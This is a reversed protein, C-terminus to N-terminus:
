VTQHLEEVSHDILRSAPSTRSDGHQKSFHSFFVARAGEVKVTVHNARPSNCQGVNLTLHACM